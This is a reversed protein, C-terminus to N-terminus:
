LMPFIYALLLTIGTNYSILAATTFPLTMNEPINTRPRTRTRLSEKLVLKLDKDKDEFAQPMTM